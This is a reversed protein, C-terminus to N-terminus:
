VQFISKHTAIPYADRFDPAYQSKIYDEPEYSSTSNMLEVVEKARIGVPTKPLDQAYCNIVLFLVVFFLTLKKM